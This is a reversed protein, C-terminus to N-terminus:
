RETPAPLDDRTGPGNLTALMRKIRDEQQHLGSRYDFSDTNSIEFRLESLYAELVQQLIEADEKDLKLETTMDRRREDECAANQSNAVNGRM